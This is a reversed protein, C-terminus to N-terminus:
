QCIYEIREGDETVAVVGGEVLAFTAYTARHAVGNVVISGAGRGGVINPAEINVYLGAGIFEGIMYLTGSIESARGTKILLNLQSREGSAGIGIAGAYQFLQIQIVGQFTAGRYDAKCQMQSLLLGQANATTATVLAVLAAFLLRLTM